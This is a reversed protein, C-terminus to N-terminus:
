HRKDYHRVIEQSVLEMAMARSGKVLITDGHRVIDFLAERAQAATEFRWVQAQGVALAGKATHEGLHGVVVLRNVLAGVRRGVVEHQGNAAEGLELMDGLFAIRREIVDCQELV